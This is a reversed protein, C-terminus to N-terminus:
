LGEAEKIRRWRAIGKCDRSCYLASSIKGTLPTGCIHCTSALVDVRNSLKQYMLGPADKIEEPLDKLLATDTHKELYAAARAMVKANDRAYGIASNCGQCLLARVMGSKHCHDVHPKTMTEQCIACKGNQEEMLQKQKELTIGYAKRLERARHMEPDANDYWKKFHEKKKERFEADTKYRESAREVKAKSWEAAKGTEKMRERYEKNQAALKEKNKAAYEKLYAAKAARQEPTWKEAQKKKYELQKARYEPDENYRKTHYHM